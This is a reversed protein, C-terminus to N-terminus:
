SFDARPEGPLPAYAFFGESDSWGAGTWGMQGAALGTVAEGAAAALVFGGWCLVLVVGGARRPDLGPLLLHVAVGFLVVTAAAGIVDALLLFGGGFVVGAAAILGAPVLAALSVIMRRRPNM